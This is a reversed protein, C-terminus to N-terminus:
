VTFSVSYVDLGQQLYKQQLNQIATKNGRNAMVEQKYQAELILPNQPPAGGGASQAVLAPNPASAKKRKSLVSLAAIKEMPQGDGALLTVVEPDNESLGFDPIVLRVAEDQASAITKGSSQAPASNGLKAEVDRKWIELEIQDPTLGNEQMQRLEAFVERMGRDKRVADIVKDKQSQIVRPDNMRELIRTELEKAFKEPDFSNQQVAGNSVQPNADTTGNLQTSDMQAM